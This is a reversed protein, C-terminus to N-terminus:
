AAQGKGHEVPLGEQTWESWGVNMERVQFGREALQLAL